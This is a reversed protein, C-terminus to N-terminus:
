DACNTNRYGANEKGKKNKIGRKIAESMARSRIKKFQKLLFRAWAECEKRIVENNEQSM